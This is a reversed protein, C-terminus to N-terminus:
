DINFNKKSLLMNLIEKPTYKSWRKDSEIIYSNIFLEEESDVWGYPLSKSYLEVNDSKDLKDIRASIEYRSQQM